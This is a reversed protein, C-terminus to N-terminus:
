GTAIECRQQCMPSKIAGPVGAEKVGGGLRKFAEIFFSEIYHPQLKRVEAREMEDRIKLVRSTDM